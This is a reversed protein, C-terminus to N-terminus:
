RRVPHVEFCTLEVRSTTFRQPRFQHHHVATASQVDRYVPETILFEGQSAIDEALKSATNVPDGWHVNTGPVILLHGAHVAIGTLPLRETVRSMPNAVDIREKLERAAAFALAAHPFVFLFEELAVGDHRKVIPHTMEVLYHTRAVVGTPGYTERMAALDFGLMVVAGEHLFQTALHQDLRERQERPVHARQLVTRIFLEGQASTCDVPHTALTDVAPLPVRYPQLRGTVVYYPRHGDHRPTFTLHSCEPVGVVRAYVKESILVEGDDAEQEGLQYARDVVEGFLRKGSRDQIIHAGCDVGFGSMHIHFSADHLSANFRQTLHACELAALMAHASSPFLAVCNDAETMWTHADYHDFVRAFLHRMQMILGAFHIIGFQRTLRTFGSMDSILVAKEGAYSFWPEDGNGTGYTIPM